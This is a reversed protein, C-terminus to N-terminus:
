NKTRGKLQVTCQASPADDAETGKLQVTCQTCRRGRHGEAASHMTCHVSHADDAETGIQTLFNGRRARGSGLRMYM